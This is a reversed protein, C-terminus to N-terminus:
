MSLSADMRRRMEAMARRLLDQNENLLDIAQKKYPDWKLNIKIIRNFISKSMNLCNKRASIRIDEILKEQLHNINELTRNTKM